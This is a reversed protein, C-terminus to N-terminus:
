IKIRSDLCETEKKNLLNLSKSQSYEVLEYKLDLYLFEDDSLDIKAWIFRSNRDEILLEQDIIPILKSLVMEDKCIILPLGDSGGNLPLVNKYFYFEKWNHDVDIMLEIDLTYTSSM